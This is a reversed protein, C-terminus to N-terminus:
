TEKDGRRKKQHKTHREKKANKYMQEVIQIMRHRGIYDIFIYVYMGM